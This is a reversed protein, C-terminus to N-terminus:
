GSGDHDRRDTAKCRAAAAACHTATCNRQTRVGAHDSRWKQDAGTMHARKRLLLHSEPGDGSGEAHDWREESATGIASDTSSATQRDQISTCAAEASDTASGATGYCYVTSPRSENGQEFAGTGSEALQPEERVNPLAEPWGGPHLCTFACQCRTDPRSSSRSSCRVCWKQRSKRQHSLRRQLKVGLGVPATPM